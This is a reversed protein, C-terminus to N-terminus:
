FWAAAVDRKPTVRTPKPADAGKKNKPKPPAPPRVRALYPYPADVGKGYQFIKSQHRQGPEMTYGMVHIEGDQHMINVRRRVEDLSFGSLAELERATSPKLEMLKLIINDFTDKEAADIMALADDLIEPYTKALDLLMLRVQGRPFHNKEYHSM